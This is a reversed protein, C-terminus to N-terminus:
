GSIALRLYCLRANRGNGGVKGALPQGLMVERECAFRVVAADEDQAVAFGHPGIVVWRSLAFYAVGEHQRVAIDQKSMLKADAPNGGVFFHRPPEVRRGAFLNVGRRRDSVVM